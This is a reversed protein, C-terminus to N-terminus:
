AGASLEVLKTVPKWNRITVTTRLQHEFYDVTLRTRAVGNPFHLYIANGVAEFRDGPSREPDLSATRAASARAALFGVHLAEAPVGRRKLFPNNAFVDDINRASRVLIPVEVGLERALSAVVREPVGRAHAASASFIVNGSQIHTSVESCGNQEFCAALTKMPVRNKGGVDIGRLLAIHTGM